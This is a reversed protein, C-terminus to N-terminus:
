ILNDINLKLFTFFDKKYKIRRNFIEKYIISFKEASRPRHELFLNVCDQFNDVRTNWRKVYKSLYSKSNLFNSLIFPGEINTNLVFSGKINTDGTMKKYAYVLKKHEHINEFCDCLMKHLQVHEERSVFVINDRDNTGGLCRPAIHHGEIKVLNSQVAEKKSTFRQKYFNTIDIYNQLNDV